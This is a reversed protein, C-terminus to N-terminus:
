ANAPILVKMRRRRLIGGVGAVGLIMMTWAAPEPVAAIQGPSLIVAKRTEVGVILDQSAVPGAAVVAYLGSEAHTEAYTLATKIWGNMNMCDTAGVDCTGYPNTTANYSSLSYLVANGPTNSSSNTNTFGLIDFAAAQDAAAIVNMAYNQVNGYTSGVPLATAGSFYGTWTIPAGYTRLQTDMYKELAALEESQLATAGFAQQVTELTWQTSNAAGSNLDANGPGGIVSGAGYPSNATYTASAFTKAVTTPGTYSTTTIGNQNYYSDGFPHTPTNTPSVILANVQSTLTGAPASPEQVSAVDIAVNTPTVATADLWYPEINHKGNVAGAEQSTLGSPVANQGSTIFNKFYYQYANGDPAVGDYGNYRDGGTITITGLSTTTSPAAVAGSAAVVGLAALSTFTRFNM